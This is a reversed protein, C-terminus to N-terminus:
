GCPWLAAFSSCPLKVRRSARRGRLFGIDRDPGEIGLDLGEVDAILAIRREPQRQWGEAAPSEGAVDFGARDAMVRRRDFHVPREGRLSPVAGSM